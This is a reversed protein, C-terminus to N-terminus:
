IIIKSNYLKFKFNKFKLVVNLQFLEERQYLDFFIESLSYKGYIKVKTGLCYGEQLYFPCSHWLRPVRHLPYCPSFSGRCIGASARNRTRPAIWLHLVVRVCSWHDQLLPAFYDWLSSKPLISIYLFSCFFVSILSTLPTHIFPSWCFGSAGAVNQKWYLKEVSVEDVWMGGGKLKHCARKQPMNDAKELRIEESHSTFSGVAFFNHLNDERGRSGIHRNNVWYM